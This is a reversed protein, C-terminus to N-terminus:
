SVVCCCDDTKKTEQLASSKLPFRPMSVITIMEDFNEAPAEKFLVFSHKLIEEPRIRRQPSFVLMKNLLDLLQKKQYPTNSMEPEEVKSEIVASLSRTTVNEMLKINLSSVEKRLSLECLDLLDKPYSRGLRSQQLVVLDTESDAMFINKVYIETVLVGLSWVDIASNVPIQLIVEPSRYWRSQIYSGSRVKESLIANGFDALVVRDGTILVNQPKIDAHIVGSDLLFLLAKALEETIKATKELSLSGGQTEVYEKLTMVHFELKLYRSQIGNFEGSSVGFTKIINSAAFGVKAELSSLISHERDISEDGAVKVAFVGEDDVLKYVSGFNGIGIPTMRGSM